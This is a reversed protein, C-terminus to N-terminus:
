RNPQQNGDVPKQYVNQALRGATAGGVFAATVAGVFGFYSSMSWAEDSQLYQANFAIAAAALGSAITLIGLLRTTWRLYGLWFEPPYVLSPNDPERAGRGRLYEPLSPRRLMYIYISGIICLVAFLLIMRWLPPYANFSVPISTPNVRQDTVLVGGQYRGPDRELAGDDVCVTVEATRAGTVVGWATVASGAVQAGDNRAFMGPRVILESNVPLDASLDVPIRRPGDTVGRGFEFETVADPRVKVTVKAAQTGAPAFASRDPASCGELTAEKADSRGLRNGVVFSALVALLGIGVAAFPLLRRM